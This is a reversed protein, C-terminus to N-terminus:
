PTARGQTAVGKGTSRHIASLEPTSNNVVFAAAGTKGRHRRTKRGGEPRRRNHHDGHAVDGGDPNSPHSAISRGPVEMSSGIPGIESRRHQRLDIGQQATDPVRGAMARDM